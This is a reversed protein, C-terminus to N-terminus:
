NSQFYIEYEEDPNESVATITYNEYQFTKQSATKTGLKYEAEYKTWQHYFEDITKASFGMKEAIKRFDRQKNIEIDVGCNSDSFVIVIFDKSHSISFQKKGNKLKPKKNEFVIERDQIFYVERLIRDLMLYSLCHRNWANAESINKKQFQKLLEKHVEDAAIVKIIYIDM